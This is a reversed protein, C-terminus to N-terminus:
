GINGGESEGNRKEERRRGGTGERGMCVLSHTHLWTCSILALQWHTQKVICKFLCIYCQGSGLSVCQVDM